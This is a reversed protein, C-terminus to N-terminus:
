IYLRNGKIVGNITKKNICVFNTHKCSIGYREILIQGTNYSDNDMYSRNSRQEQREDTM